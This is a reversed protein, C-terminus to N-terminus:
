DETSRKFYSLCKKLMGTVYNRTGSSYFNKPWAHPALKELVESSLTGGKSALINRYVHETKRMGPVVTSVAPHSLCYRLALEGVDNAGAEDLLSKLRKVRAVIEKRRKPTFYAERWDGPEFHTEPTIAGTLAGEDFPSRVIIGVNKEECLRFLPFVANPDFINYIVQVTDILDAAVVDLASNPEHDNISIGFHAIKGERKLQQLTERWEMEDIWNPAWVHLQQLDIRDVGLNMLSMETCAIIHDKPFVEKLRVRKRAPWELNKPPIKTAVYIRKSRQSVLKGILRESHGNGYSLATDIFNLGLDIALNLANLSAQDSGGKWIDGGIGWAGFGIESVSYGTRGLPRYRM